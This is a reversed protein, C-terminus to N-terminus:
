GLSGVAFCRVCNLLPVYGIGEKGLVYAFPPMAIGAAHSMGLGAFEPTKVWVLDGRNAYILPKEVFMTEIYEDMSSFGAKKFVRLADKPGKIDGKLEFDYGTMERIAGCAFSGCSNFEWDCTIGEERCEHLYLTLREQWDHVRVLMLPGDNPDQAAYLKAQKDDLPLEKHAKPKAPKFAPQTL